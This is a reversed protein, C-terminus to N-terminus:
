ERDLQDLLNLAANRWGEDDELELLEKLYKAATKNDGSTYKILALNYYAEKFNKDKQISLKFYRESESSDEELFKVVGRDNLLAATEEHIYNLISDANMYEKNMIYIQARILKARYSEPNTAMARNTYEAARHLFSESDNDASLLTSIGTSKYGGSLRPSDTIYIRYNEKLLNSALNLQHTTNYYSVGFYFGITIVFVLIAAFAYRPYYKPQILSINKINNWVNSLKGPKVPLPESECSIDIIKDLIEDNSKIHVQALEPVPEATLSPVLDRIKVCLRNFNGESQYIGKLLIDAKQPIINGSLIDLLMEEMESFTISQADTDQYSVSVKSKLKNIIEFFLQYFLDGDKLKEIRRNVEASTKDLLYAKIEQYSIQM